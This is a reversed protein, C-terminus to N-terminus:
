TVRDQALFNKKNVERAFFTIVLLVYKDGHMCTSGGM